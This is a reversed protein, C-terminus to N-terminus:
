RSCASPECSGRRCLPSTTNTGTCPARTRTWPSTTLGAVYSTRRPSVSASTSRAAPPKVAAAALRRTCSDRMRGAASRSPPSRPRTTISTFRAGAEAPTVGAEAPTVGSNATSDPSTIRTNTTLSRTARRTATFPATHLGPTTPKVGPIFSESAIRMAPPM